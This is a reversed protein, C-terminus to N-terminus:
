QLEFYTLLPMMAENQSRKITGDGNAPESASTAWDMSVVTSRITVSGPLTM